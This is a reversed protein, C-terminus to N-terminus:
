AAALLMYVETELKAADDTWHGYVEWNVGARQRHNQSIFAAVRDYTEGLRDYPGLHLGRAAEGAPTYARVVEGAEEFPQEVEVGCTMDVMGDGLNRYIAVNRGFTLNNGRVFGWVVDLAPILVKPISAMATRRDVAAIQHPTCQVFAVQNM